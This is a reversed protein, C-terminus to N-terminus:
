VSIRTDTISSEGKKCVVGNTCDYLFQRVICSVCSICIWDRPLSSGRSHSVAVLELIGMQFIWHVFSGPSGCDMPDCLTPCPQARVCVRMSPFHTYCSLTYARSPSLFWPEGGTLDRKSVLDWTSLPALLLAEWGAPQSLYPLDGWVWCMFDRHIETMLWLLYKNKILFFYQGTIIGNPPNVMM